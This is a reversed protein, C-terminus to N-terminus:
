RGAVESVEDNPAVFVPKRGMCKIAVHFVLDPEGPWEEIRVGGVVVLKGGNAKVYNAVAKYLADVHASGPSPACSRAARTKSKLKSKM